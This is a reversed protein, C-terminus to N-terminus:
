SGSTSFLVKVSRVSELALDKIWTPLDAFEARVRDAGCRFIRAPFFVDLASHIMGPAQPSRKANKLLAAAYDTGRECEHYILLAQLFEPEQDLRNELSKWFSFPLAKSFAQGATIRAVTTRFTLPLREEQILRQAMDPPLSDDFTNLFSDFHELITASTARKSTHRDCEEQILTAFAESLLPRACVSLDSSLGGLFGRSNQSKDSTATKFDLIPLRLVNPDTEENGDLRKAFTRGSRIFALIVAKWDEMSFTNFMQLSLRKQLDQLKEENM